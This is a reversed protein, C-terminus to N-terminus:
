EGRLAQTSTACNNPGLELQFADDEVIRERGLNAAIITRYNSPRPPMDALVREVFTDEDHSLLDMSQRLDALTATYTGDAAPEASDSYHGGAILVEEPLEFVVNQLTDYLTRAADVAGEDGAELDPRAVSDTFLGDGTLLVSEDVLYSTMGSTHGPTHIATVTAGGVSFTSGDTAERLEEAYTVGRGISDAPLVGVTDGTALARVGSFHDAHIHTDIAYRLTADLEEVDSRYRDVFARLPDFLSAEGGDVLLYALCGSSPRRYQYLRGSGDYREVERGEYVQAWGEMGGALNEADFGHERLLTAIEASSIGKACVVVLPDGDPISELLEPGPGGEFKTGPVNVAEVTPGDIHWEAYEDAERVDLITVPDGREIREYLASPEVEVEDVDAVAKRHPLM